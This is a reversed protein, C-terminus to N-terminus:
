PTPSILAVAIGWALVSFVGEAVVWLAASTAATSRHVKYLALTLLAAGIGACLVSAPYPGRVDRQNAVPFALHHGLEWLAELAILWVVIGAVRL